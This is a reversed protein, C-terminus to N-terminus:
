AWNGSKLGKEKQLMHKQVHGNKRKSKRKTAWYQHQRKMIKWIVRSYQIWDENTLGIWQGQVSGPNEPDWALKWKWHPSCNKGAQPAKLDLEKPQTSKKSPNQWCFFLHIRHFMFISGLSNLNGYQTGKFTRAM